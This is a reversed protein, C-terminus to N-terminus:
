YKPKVTIGDLQNNQNRYAKRQRQLVTSLDQQNYFNRRDGPKPLQGNSNLDSILTIIRYMPDNRGSIVENLLYKSSVAKIIEIEELTNIKRHNNEPHIISMTEEITKM